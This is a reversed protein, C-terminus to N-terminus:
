GMSTKPFTATLMQILGIDGDMAVGVKVGMAEVAMEGGLLERMAVMAM